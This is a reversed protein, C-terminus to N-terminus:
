KLLTMRRVQSGESTEIKYFYIGSAVARGYDDSGDWIISHHGAEFEGDALRRVLAGSLDFVALRAGGGITNFDIRTEANFPNPYNQALAFEGPVEIEDEVGTPIMDPIAIRGAQLVSRNFDSQVFVVLMCNEPILPSPVAFDETYEYTEYQEISFATGGATPIMDRLTQNHILTNNPARWVINNEILAVRLKLNSLGPDFEAYVSVTFEGTRRESDYTGTVDNTLPSWVDAEDMFRSAWSGSNSGADITGDIYLHPTYDAGYYNVRARNETINFNYYPDDSGPWWCHYRIVVVVEEM